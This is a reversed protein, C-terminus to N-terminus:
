KAKNKRPLRYFVGSAPVRTLKFFHGERGLAYKGDARNCVTIECWKHGEQLAKRAGTSTGKCDVMRYPLWGPSSVYDQKGIHVTPTLGEVRGRGRGVPYIYCKSTIRKAMLRLSDSIASASPPKKASAEVVGLTRDTSM